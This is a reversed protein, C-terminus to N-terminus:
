PRDTRYFKVRQGIHIDNGPRSFVYHHTGFYFSCLGAPSGNALYNIIICASNNQAFYLLGIVFPVTPTIEPKGVCVTRM